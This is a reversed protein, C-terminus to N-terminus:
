LSNLVNRIKDCATKIEEKSITLPPAIRLCSSAFLFWDTFVSAGILADIIGKNMEFSDFEVAMMLGCSRITKIKPHALCSILLQEKEKVSDVLKEDLLVTFAALGAACCVPHGGFTNIHGLVPDHTLSDMIKKDAIFAGLPMGGGLAKGLLLIDPVVDFQEFAWLTGNRGFGCQIEDLVLLTGTQDCKKRLAKLWDNQPAIVGAEAQVTEAIVCATQETINELDSFSNYNLQLIGPLLPRFAQQWYESGMVSLAGQTSGHYSNKFSVIQTRNSFRKALKMAGETAESGSATFFVSNLSAPLHDTLKKAYRVQPSQVLEGYVMIHLYRDVQKKIADIVKPHRHGVNCVSIGGILDIYEKGDADYLKCGEARVIELCLPADSTQGVHNLFLQRNTM